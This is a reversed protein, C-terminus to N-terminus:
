AVYDSGLSAVLDKEEFYLGIYIYLTMCAALMLHTMTMIPTCWMGILVGLQLPHRVIRYFGTETFTAEPESFNRIKLYVQQLGFLEYHNILFTSIIAISWGALYGGTLALQIIPSDAQWLVGAIPQWYFSILLMMVGSMLVYTSREAEVPIVKTLVVKFSPRATLSHQLGFLIMLGVNIGIATALNSPQRSNIHVPLFEFGGLYAIFYLLGFMGVAYSTLSFVALLFNKM